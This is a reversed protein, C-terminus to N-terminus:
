QPNPIAFSSSRIIQGATRLQSGLTTISAINIDMWSALSIGDLSGLDRHIYLPFQDRSKTRSPPVTSTKPDRM